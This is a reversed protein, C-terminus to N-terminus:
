PVYGNKGTERLTEAVQEQPRSHVASLLANCRINSIRADALGNGLEAQIDTGLM